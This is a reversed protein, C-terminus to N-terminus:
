AKHVKFSLVEKSARFNGDEHLNSVDFLKKKHGTSQTKTEEM